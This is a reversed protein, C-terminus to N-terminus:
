NVVIEDDLDIRPRYTYVGCSITNFVMLCNIVNSEQQYVQCQEHIKWDNGSAVLWDLVDSHVAWADKWNASMDPCLPRGLQERQFASLVIVRAGLRSSLAFSVSTQAYSFGTRPAVGEAGAYVGKNDRAAM